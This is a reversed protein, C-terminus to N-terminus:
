LWTSLLCLLPQESTTTTLSRFTREQNFEAWIRPESFLLQRWPGLAQTSWSPDGKGGKSKEPNRLQADKFQDRVCGGGLLGSSGGPEFLGFENEREGSKLSAGPVVCSMPLQPTLDPRPTTRVAGLSCFRGRSWSESSWPWPGLGLDLSLTWSLTAPFHAHCIVKDQSMLVVWGLAPGGRLRETM